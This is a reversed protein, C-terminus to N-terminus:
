ISLTNQIETIKQEFLEKHEKDLSQTSIKITTKPSIIQYEDFVKKIDTINKIKIEKTPIQYLKITNQTIEFYGKQTGYVYQFLFFMCFIFEFFTFWSANDIIFDTGFMVFWLIGMTLNLRNTFKKYPFKM